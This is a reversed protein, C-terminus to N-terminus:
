LVLSDDDRRILPNSVALSPSTAASTPSKWVRGLNFRPRSVTEGAQSGRGSGAITMAHVRRISRKFCIIRNNSRPWLSFFIGNRELMGVSCCKMTMERQQALEQSSNVMVIWTGVCLTEGFDPSRGLASSAHLFSSDWLFLDRIATMEGSVHGLHLAVWAISPVVM